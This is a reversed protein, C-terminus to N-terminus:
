ASPGSLLPHIVYDRLGQRGIKGLVKKGQTLFTPRSARGSIVRGIELDYAAIGYRFLVANLANWLPQLLYSPM